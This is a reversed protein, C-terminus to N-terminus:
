NHVSKQMVVMNVTELINHRCNIMWESRQCYLVCISKALIFMYDNKTM